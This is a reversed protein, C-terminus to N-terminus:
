YKQLEEMDKASGMFCPSKQHIHEPWRGLLNAGSEDDMAKDGTHHVVFAM